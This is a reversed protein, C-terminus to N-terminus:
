WTARVAVELADQSAKVFPAYHRETTRISTHGLLISVTQLPVGKSLLDVSFTDRLRHSHGDRVGALRFLKKLREQWETIATKLKGTGSWFYLPQGIEEISALLSLVAEPLPLAVPQGTKAQYLFLRGNVDIKDRSLSVVDSIRLGSYRMLLVLAKLRRVTKEPTGKQTDGYIDLAWLLKEWEDESFPLTPVSRVLPPKLGRAPSSAIWESAVCFLFFNRIIELRKGTSSAKVKWSERLKRLDDIAISHVPLSRFVEALERQRERYKRLTSDQLGRAVCDAIWRRAAEEVSILNKEGHVEWERIRKRAAEWSTLDLSRRM